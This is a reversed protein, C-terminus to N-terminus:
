MSLKFRIKSAHITVYLLLQYTQEYNILKIPKLNSDQECSSFEINIPSQSNGACSPYKIFWADPGNVEYDFSLQTKISGM